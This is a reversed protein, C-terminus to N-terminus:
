KAARRRRAIKPDARLPRYIEVRDGAVLSDDLECVAGYVGVADCALDIDSFEDLVGSNEIARRVTTGQPVRLQVVTQVDERAYVVEVEIDETEDRAM